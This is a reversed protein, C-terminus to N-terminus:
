LNQRGSTASNRISHAREDARGCLSCVFKVVCLRHNRAIHVQLDTLKGYHDGNILCAPADNPM